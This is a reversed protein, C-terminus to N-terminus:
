KLVVCATVLMMGRKGEVCFMFAMRRRNRAPCHHYKSKRKECFALLWYACVSAGSSSCSAMM